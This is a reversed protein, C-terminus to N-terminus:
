GKREVVGVRLFQNAEDQNMVGAIDFIRTPGGQPPVYVIQQGQNIVLSSVDGYGGSADGLYIIHTIQIGAERFLSATQSNRPQIAAPLAAYAVTTFAKQRVGGVQSVTMNNVAVVKNLM